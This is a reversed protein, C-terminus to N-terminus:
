SADFCHMKDVMGATGWRQCALGLSEGQTLYACCMGLNKNNNCSDIFAHQVSMFAHLKHLCKEFFYSACASGHTNVTDHGHIPCKHTFCGMCVAIYSGNIAYFGLLISEGEQIICAHLVHRLPPCQFVGINYRM